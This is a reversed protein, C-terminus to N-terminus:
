GAGSGISRGDTGHLTDIACVIHYLSSARTPESPSRGDPRLQERWLGVQPAADIYRMLGVVSAAIRAEAYMADAPTVAM